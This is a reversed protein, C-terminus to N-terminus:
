LCARELDVAAQQDGLVGAGGDLAGGAAVHEEAAAGVGGVPGAAHDAAALRDHQHGVATLAAPIIRLRRNCRMKAAAMTASTDLGGRRTASKTVQRTSRNRGDTPKAATLSSSSAPQVTSTGGSCT